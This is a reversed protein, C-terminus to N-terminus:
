PVADGTEGPKVSHPKVPEVHSIALEIYFSSGKGRASQLEMRGGMMEVVKRAASLGLGLGPYSEVGHLRVFPTFIRRQDDPDIGIGNDQIRLGCTGGAKVCSIEISPEVGPSVFKIANSLVNDLAIQLLTSDAKVVSLPRRIHVQAHTSQIHDKMRELSDEIARELDLNQLVAERRAVRSFALLSDILNWMQGTAGRIREIFEKGRPDLQEGHDEALADAFGSISRLPARLDHAMADVFSELDENRLKLELSLRRASLLSEVRAQLEVKEVPALLVDDL